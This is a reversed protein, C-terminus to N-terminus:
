PLSRLFAAAQATMWQRLEGITRFGHHRFLAAVGCLLFREVSTHVMLAGGPGEFSVMADPTISFRDIRGDISGVFGIRNRELWRALRSGDALFPAAVFATLLDVSAGSFVVEHEPAGTGSWALTFDLDASVSAELRRGGIRRALVVRLDGGAGPVAITTASSRVGSSWSAAVLPM